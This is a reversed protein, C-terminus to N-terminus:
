SLHIIGRRLAVTAAATRDAVELKDLINRVHVQVTEETIRLTSAIQHNRLGRAVLELVEIERSTLSKKAGRALLTAEVDPHIPRHGAHVERIVRILDDSLADKFLYTVAGAAMARYIDEDGQHVTLVIIRAGPDTSCVSTIVEVGSSAGLELDLLMVDPRLQTYREISEKVTAAEGVVEIDSQRGIILGIGERVLSHDDVCLVRIPDAGLRGLTSNTQRPTL